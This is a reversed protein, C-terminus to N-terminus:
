CGARPELFCRRARTSRDSLDIVFPVGLQGEFAEGIPCTLNGALRNLRIPCAFQVHVFPCAFPLRISAPSDSMCGILLWRSVALTKAVCM